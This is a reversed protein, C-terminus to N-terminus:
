LCRVSELLDTGQRRVLKLAAPLGLLLDLFEALLRLVGAGFSGDLQRRCRPARRGRRGGACREFANGGQRLLTKASPKRFGVFDIAPDARDPQRFFSHSRSRRISWM